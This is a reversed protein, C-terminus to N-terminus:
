VLYWAWTPAVSYAGLNISGGTRIPAWEGVVRAQGDVTVTVGTGGTVKVFGDRYFPNQFSTSAAPVTPAIQVGHTARSSIIRANAGGNVLPTSENSEVLFNLHQDGTLANNPDYVHDITSPGDGSSGEVDWTAINIRTFNSGADGVHLHYQCLETSLYDIQIGDQPAAQVTVGRQCYMITAAGIHTHEGVAIGWDYGQVTVHGVHCSDNNGTLPMRLGIGGNGFTPLSTSGTEAGGSNLGPVVSANFGIKDLHCEGIYGLDLACGFPNLPSVFFVGRMTLMLNNFGNFPSPNGLGEITPGGLVSALGHTADYGTALNSVLVAAGGKQISTQHWHPLIAGNGPGLIELTFKTGTSSFEPLPLQSKGHLTTDVAGNVTFPGGRSDLLVRGVYSGDAVGDAAVGAIAAKIAATDDTGGGQAKVLRVASPAEYVIGVATEIDTLTKVTVTEAIQDGTVVTRATTNEQARTITLTDGTINTVRVIEANAPSPLQGNQWVTANFPPTSFRSGQGSTVTLSTGSTAPSPATAVASIALNAHSDFTTM